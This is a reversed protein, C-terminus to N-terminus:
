DDIEEDADQRTHLELSFISSPRDTDTERSAKDAASIGGAFLEIAGGSAASLAYKKHLELYHQYQDDADWETKGKLSLQKGLRLAIKLCIQAASAYINSGEVQNSCRGVQDALLRRM